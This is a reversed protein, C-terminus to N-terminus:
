FKIGSWYKLYSSLITAEFMQKNSTVYDEHGSFFFSIRKKLKADRHALMVEGGYCNNLKKLRHNRHILPFEVADHGPTDSEGVVKLSFGKITIQEPKDENKIPQIVVFWGNAKDEVMGSINKPDMLQNQSIRTFSIEFLDRWDASDPEAGSHAPDLTCVPPGSSMGLASSTFAAWVLYQLVTM